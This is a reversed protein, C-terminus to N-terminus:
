VTALNQISCLSFFRGEWCIIHSKIKQWECSKEDAICAAHALLVQKFNKWKINKSGKLLLVM